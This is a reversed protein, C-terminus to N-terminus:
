ILGHLAVRYTADRRFVAPDPAWTPSMATTVSKIVVGGLVTNPLRLRLAARIGTSVARVRDADAGYVNVDLLAIDLTLQQDGDDGGRQVHAIPATYDYGPPLRPDAWAKVGLTSVLWDAILTEPDAYTPQAM